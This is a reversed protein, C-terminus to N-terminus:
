PEYRWQYAEPIEIVLPASREDTQMQVLLALNAAGNLEQRPRFPVLITLLGEGAQVVTTGTAVGRMDDGDGISEVVKATIMAEPVSVLEYRLKVEFTIPATGTLTSDPTPLVQQVEISDYGRSQMDATGVGDSEAGVQLETLQIQNDATDASLREGNLANYLGVVLHYTGPPLEPPLFLAHPDRMPQDATWTSTPQAPRSDWQALLAGTEDVLHIFVTYDDAPQQVAQWYLTLVFAQGPQYPGDDLEYGLLKISDGFTAELLHGPTAASSLFPQNPETFTLFDAMVWGSGAPSAFVKQWVVGDVTLRDGMMALTAGEPLLAIESGNPADRLVLGDGNTNSVMAEWTRYVLELGTPMATFLDAPLDAPSVMKRELRELHRLINEGDYDTVALVEVSDADVKVERYQSSEAWGFAESTYTIKLTAISRGDATTERGLLSGDWRYNDYESGAMPVGLPPANLAAMVCDYDTCPWNLQVVTHALGEWGASAFFPPTIYYRPLPDGRIDLTELTDLTQQAVHAIRGPPSEFTGRWLQVGDSQAFVYFNGDDDIVQGRFQRGDVTQWSEATVEVLEGTRPAPILLRLRDYVIDTPKDPRTVVVEQRGIGLTGSGQSVVFWISLVAISLLGLSVATGLWRGMWDFRSPAPQQYQHLLHRRLDATFQAPPRPAAPPNQRLTATLRRVAEDDFFENLRDLEDNNQHSM